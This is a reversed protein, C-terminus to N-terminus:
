KEGALVEAINFAHDKIRRYSTLMDTYILSKLPTAKGESVRNLHKNRCEKMYKTVANGKIMAESLFAANESEVADTVNVIYHNVLDHLGLIEEMAEPSLVEDTDKMKLRLKTITAIYDSISEFEDAMRLQERATKMTDHTINGAMIHGIFEVVEKQVIDLDNEAQFIPEVKSLSLDGTIFIERLQKLMEVVRRGMKVVEKDSQELGISPTDFLRIDLYTLRPAAPKKREKVAWNLFRAMVGVFPLFFLTNIINFASHTVAIAAQTYPYTAATGSYVAVGPGEVHQFTKVFWVIGDTYWHFISTIWLVGILNFLIHAYAARRANASTGLSALFATITTGINEGLVLAAATQYDIAGSYALAMTIGITASSSQVIATLVAGVMCCKLVGFYSSPEFRHFWQIFGEMEKIPSFGVKMLELGYFVMGLGVFFMATFRVRDRKTFVFLLAAFGLLPLGYKDLSFTLIWATMTTGINAGMIVGIAQVLTMVGANVMGVVMVTTISSSQIISTVATGVGCALFRNSTVAGILKRLREGAVAQMGESMNKMGLLFIGLGGFVEFILKIIDM